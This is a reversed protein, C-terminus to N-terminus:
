SDGHDSCILQSMLGELRVSSLRAQRWALNVFQHGNRQMDGIWAEKVYSEVPPTSQM